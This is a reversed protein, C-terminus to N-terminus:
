STFYKLNAQQTSRIQLILKTHAHTHVACWFTGFCFYARACVCVYLQMCLKCLPYTTFSIGSVTAIVILHASHMYYLTHCIYFAYLFYRQSFLPRLLVTTVTLLPFLLFPRPPCSSCNDTFQSVNGFDSLLFLCFFILQLPLRNPPQYITPFPPLRALSHTHFFYQLSAFSSILTFVSSGSVWIMNVTTFHHCTSSMTFIIPASLPPLPCSYFSSSLSPRIAAPCLLFSLLEYISIKTCSDNQDFAVCVGHFIGFHMRAIHTTHTHASELLLM